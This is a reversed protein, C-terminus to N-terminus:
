RRHRSGAPLVGSKWHIYPTIARAVQIRLGLADPDRMVGMLFALPSGRRRQLGSGEENSRAPSGKFIWARECQAPVDHGYKTSPM